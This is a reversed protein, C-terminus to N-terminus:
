EGNDSDASEGELFGLDITAFGGYKETLHERIERAITAKRKRNDTYLDYTLRTGWMDSNVHSFISPLGLCTFVKNNKSHHVHTFRDNDLCMMSNNEGLVQVREFKYDNKLELELAGTKLVIDVHYHNVTERM